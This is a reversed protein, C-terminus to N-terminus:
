VGALNHQSYRGCSPILSTLPSAAPLRRMYAPRARAFRPSPTTRPRRAVTSRQAKHIYLREVALTDNGLTDQVMMRCPAPEERVM